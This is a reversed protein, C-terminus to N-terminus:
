KQPGRHFRPEYQTPDDVKADIFAVKRARCTPCTGCHKNGGKYCSWTTKWNVGLQTGKTIIESKTMHELPAHLCVQYYTGTYIANVMAGIFQPTCDPYAWNLADEAHAGFYIGVVDQVNDYDAAKIWGQAHSALISLMLGNRFPVYTPSVGKIDAYDMDPLKQSPDTLMTSQILNDARITKHQIKLEECTTLAYELEVKHRQGYDISIADVSKCQELAIHLCTTSDIGGSLLVFGKVHNM